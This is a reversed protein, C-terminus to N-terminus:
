PLLKRDTLFSSLRLGRDCKLTKKNDADITIHLQQPLQRLLLPLYDDVLPWLRYTVKGKMSHLFKSLPCHRTNIIVIGCLVSENAQLSGMRWRNTQIEEGPVGRGVVNGRGIAKGKGSYLTTLIRVHLKKLRM